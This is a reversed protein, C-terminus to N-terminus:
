NSLVRRHVCVGLNSNFYNVCLKSFVKYLTEVPM